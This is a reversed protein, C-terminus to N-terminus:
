HQTRMCLKGAVHLNCVCKWEKVSFIIIEILQGFKQKSKINVQQWIEAAINDYSISGIAVVIFTFVWATILRIQYSLMLWIFWIQFNNLVYCITITQILSLRSLLKHNSALSGASFKILCGSIPLILFYDKRQHQYIM